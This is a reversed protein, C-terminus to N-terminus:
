QIREFVAISEVHSTHPFMNVVGAQQLAYGAEHVLLSADRALTAPNCSVYVIRTPLGHHGQEHLKALAKVVEVAGERPPDILWKDFPGLAALGDASMEFLNRSTFQTREALGNRRANDMARSTLTESGEIGLVFAGWRAMPLTFNGIGCFLDLLRDTPAIELLRVAKSVLVRNIQHNVQTFDTPRFPMVVDFEPLTYTLEPGLPHFPRATAPGDPQLWFQICHADAFARLAEEDKSTLPQLIRLVLATVGEGVALEIQPMRERVSLGEILVRLPELLASVHAPLIECSTMDVIYSSKRQHFGILVRQKSAIYRVSLRARYRYGWSPGMIPRMIRGPQLRSLHVLNDELVRQKFAVQAGADAHQISCGGCVGFFTCKPKVRIPTSDVVEELTAQEFRKKSKYARYRVREGPLAGEVFVVKGPTGDPNVLRGVGRGEIDCSTISLLGEDDPACAKGEFLAARAVPIAPTETFKFMIFTLFVNDALRRAAHRTLQM